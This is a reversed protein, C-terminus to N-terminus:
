MKGVIEAVEAVTAATLRGFSVHSLEQVQLRALKKAETRLSIFDNGPLRKQCSDLCVFATKAVWKNLVDCVM